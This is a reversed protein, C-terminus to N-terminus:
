RLKSGAILACACDMQIKAIHNRCYTHMQLGNTDWDSEQLSHMCLGNTDRESEQSLAHVTSCQQKRTFFSFEKAHMKNKVNQLRGILAIAFSRTSRRKPLGRSNRGSIVGHV